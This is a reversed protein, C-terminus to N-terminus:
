SEPIAKKLMWDLQMEGYDSFTFGGEHLWLAVMDETLFAENPYIRLLQRWIDRTSYHFEASSPDQVPEYYDFLFNKLKNIIGTFDDSM